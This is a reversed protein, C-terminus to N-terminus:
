ALTMVEDYGKTVFTLQYYRLHNRRIVGGNHLTTITVNFNRVHHLKQVQPGIKREDHFNKAHYHTIELIFDNM